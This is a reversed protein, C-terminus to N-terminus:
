QGSQSMLGKLVRAFVSAITAGQKPCRDYGEFGVALAYKPADMPFYGATIVDDDPVEPAFVRVGEVYFGDKKCLESFIEKADMYDDESEDPDLVPASEDQTHRYVEAGKADTMRSVLFPFVDKGGGALDACIRAFKFGDEILKMEAPNSFPVAAMAVIERTPVKIVFGWAGTTHNVAVADALADALLTQVSSDITTEVTGGHVPRGRELQERRALRADREGRAGKLVIDLKHGIGNRGFARFVSPGTLVGDVIAANAGIPYFRRQRKECILGTQFAARRIREVQEVPEAEDLVPVYRSDKRAYAASMKGRSVGCVDAALVAADEITFCENTRVAQPDLHVSWVPRSEALSTGDAALIRGARPEIGYPGLEADSVPPEYFRLRGREATIFGAVFAAFVVSWAAVSASSLKWGIRREGDEPGASLLLGLGSGFLVASKAGLGALAPSFGIIPLWGLDQAFVWLAPAVFLAMFAVALIRQAFGKRSVIAMTLLAGLACFLLCVVIPFWKGFMLSSAAAWGAGVADPIYSLDLSANGFGQSSAVGALYQSHAWSGTPSESSICMLFKGLRNANMFFAAFYFVGAAFLAFMVRCLNKGSMRRAVLCALVGAMVGCLQRTLADPWRGKLEAPLEVCFWLGMAALLAAVGVMAMKQTKTNM